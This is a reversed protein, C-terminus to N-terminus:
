PRRTAVVFFGDKIEASGDKTIVRTEFGLRNFVETLHEPHYDRTPWPDDKLLEKLERDLDIKKRSLLTSVIVHRSSVRCLESIFKQYDELCQLAGISIVLDFSRDGFKLDYGNAVEFKLKPFAERAAEVLNESYDVGLVDFGKKSLESCYRGVGCGVDLVRAPKPKLGSVLKLTVRLLQEYGARTWYGKQFEPLDKLARKDYFRRWEDDMGM